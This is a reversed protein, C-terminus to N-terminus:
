SSHANLGTVASLRMVDAFKPESDGRTNTSLGMVQISHRTDSPTGQVEEDLMWSGFLHALVGGMGEGETKPEHWTTGSRLYVTPRDTVEHSYSRFCDMVLCCLPCRAIASRRIYAVSNYRVCHCASRAIEEDSSKVLEACKFCLMAPGGGQGILTELHRLLVAIPDSPAWHLPVAWSLM